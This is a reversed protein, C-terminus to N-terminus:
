RGPATSCPDTVCVLLQAIIDRQSDRWDGPDKVLAWRTRKVWKARDSGLQRHLNWAWRRAQDIARNALAIVHFPDAAQRADPAYTRTAKAYAGGLDLSVAELQACRQEGLEDYFRALTASDKGSAGDHGEGAWVVADNRDHDAVVTLYRHGKRYSIEDVGIRYLNDLRTDDLQEVVVQTVANRVAAWSIRLLRRVTDKDCRQALWAIVDQLDRSHRAGHRAWPVQETVVRACWRCDLRRIEAELWVKSSGADVHRWRRVSTDYGAATSWGCSPCTLRRFRRRLGVVIGESAFTVSSVTAGEIALMRNFATTVRM